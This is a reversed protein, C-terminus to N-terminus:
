YDPRAAAKDRRPIGAKLNKVFNGGGAAKPPAFLNVATSEFQEVPRWSALIPGTKTRGAKTQGTKGWHGQRLSKLKPLAL